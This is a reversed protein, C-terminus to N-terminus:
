YESPLLIVNDTMWFRWEGFPCDTLSIHREFVPPGEDGDTVILDANHKDSVRLTVAAFEKAQELIKPETVLIDLLWYAGAKDCFYKVGDTFTIAKNLPHRWWTESGTFGALDHPTLTNM